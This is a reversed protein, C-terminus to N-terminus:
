EGAVLAQLARAFKADDPWVKKGEAAEDEHKKLWTDFYWEKQNDSMQYFNQGKNKGFPVALFTAGDAAPASVEEVDLTVPRRTREPAPQARPRPSDDFGNGPVEEAPTTSLGAKMMVVVHAFCARGARSMARTQAMARGAYEARSGWTSKGSRDKEDFGVFGQGTSIIQGAPNRVYGNATYGILEGDPGYERKADGAGLFCGHAIAIAEWGEVCVYQKGQISTATAKVIEACVEAVDTARRMFVAPNVDLAPTAAPLTLSLSKDSM